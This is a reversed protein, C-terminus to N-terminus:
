YLTNTSKTKLWRLIIEKKIFVTLYIDKNLKTLPTTEKVSPPPENPERVDQSRPGVSTIPIRNQSIRGGVYANHAAKSLILEGSGFETTAMFTGPRFWPISVTRMGNEISFISDDTWAAIAVYVDEKQEHEPVRLEFPGRQMSVRVIRHTSAGEGDGEIFMNNQTEM